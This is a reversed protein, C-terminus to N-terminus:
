MALSDRVSQAQLSKRAEIIVASDEDNEALWRLCNAVAKGHYFSLAYASAQRVRPDLDETNEILKRKAPRYPFLGLFFAAAIKTSSDYADIALLLLHGANNPRKGKAIMKFLQTWASREAEAVRVAEPVIEEWFYLEITKGM